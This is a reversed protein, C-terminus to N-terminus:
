TLKNYNLWYQSPIIKYSNICTSCRIQADNLVLEYANNKVWKFKLSQEAMAKM